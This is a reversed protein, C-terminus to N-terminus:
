WLQPQVQDHSLFLFALFHNGFDRQSVERLEGAFQAAVQTLFFGDSEEVLVSAGVGHPLEHHVGALLVDLRAQFVRLAM